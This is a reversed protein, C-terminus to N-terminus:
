KVVAMIINEFEDVLLEWGPHVVVTTIREEIVAPGPIRFGPQLFERDYVKVEQLGKSGDTQELYINRTGKLADASTGKRASTRKMQTKDVMGVATIRVNMIEIPTEPTSYTYFKEHAQHFLETIEAIRDDEIRCSNPIEVTVEHHQGVYRMDLYRLLKTKQHEVGEQLLEHLAQAEVEDIVQNFQELDVGPICANYTKVNDLRIDSELMGLACFVSAAKPVVIRSSGIEEAIKCAHM